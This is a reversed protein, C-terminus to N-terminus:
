VRWREWPILQNTIHSYQVMTLVTKLKANLLLTLNYKQYQVNM